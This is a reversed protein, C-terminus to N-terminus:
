CSHILVSFTITFDTLFSANTTCILCVWDGLDVFSVTSSAVPHMWHRAYLVSPDIQLAGCQLTHPLLCGSEYRFYM